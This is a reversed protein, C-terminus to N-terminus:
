RHPGRKPLRNSKDKMGAERNAVVNQIYRSGSQGWDKTGSSLTTLKIKTGLYADPSHSSGSNLSFYCNLRTLVENPSEGIALIDDTYVFLHENYEKGTVKVALRFWVVPDGTSSEYGLHALCNAVHNFAAGASKLGYLVRVVKSKRGMRHPGFEPDLVKNIKEQCQSTLYTNQIDASLISLGYLAAM